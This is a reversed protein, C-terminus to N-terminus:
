RYVAVGSGSGVVFGTGLPYATADAPVALAFRGRVRGDRGDITVLDGGSAATIRATDPALGAAPDGSPSVATPPASAAASWAPRTRTADVAYLVGGRWILETSGVALAVTRASGNGPFKSTLDVRSQVAGTKAALLELTDGGPQLAALVADASAPRFIDGRRFWTIKDANEESDDGNGASGDRLFLQPGKACYKIGKCRVSPACTQGILAGASGLVAGTITCGYRYYTWRDLGTVPDIAYITTRSTIMVTYTLLQFSPVGIIPQQDKDLTRTWRRRGTDSDFASVEDCNGHLRYVAITTSTTQAVTCITRDTRTYSWTRAGTRADRGGVTHPSYTVITGGSIPDGLAMRDSTRWALAPSDSPNAAPVARPPPAFTHLRAHAAEGRSWAVAVVAVLAAVTVGVVGFYVLRARNM